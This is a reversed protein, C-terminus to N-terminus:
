ESPNCSKCCTYGSKELNVISENSYEKNEDKTNNLSGCSPYHIKKSKKNLVWKYESTTQAADNSNVNKDESVSVNINKGDSTIVINGNKDTRLIEAGVNKYREVVSSVPHGYSNDSGVEFVAYKPHVRNVFDESSSTKSGHHGVKIVDASVNSKIENEVLSEADGMFLFSTEGYSVKLVASYDNLEDYEDDVPSLFSATLSNENIVTVGNKAQVTKCGQAEIKDLLTEFCYSTSVANPMYVTQVNFNDFVDGFGGIHDSHPHTAVVYNITNVGLSKLYDCVVQGKDTEGADILMNTGNPLQIFESDGQGVDIFHVILDNNNETQAATTEEVTNQSINASCATFSFLTLVVLLLATIKSKM